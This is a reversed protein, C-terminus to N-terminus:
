GLTPFAEEALNFEKNSGRGGCGGRDGRRGGRGRDGGEYLLILFLIGDM